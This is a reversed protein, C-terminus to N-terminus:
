FLSLACFLSLLFFISASLLPFFVYNNYCIAKDFKIWQPELLVTQSNKEIDLMILSEGNIDTKIFIIRKDNSSWTPMMFFEDNNGTFTYIEEGKLNLIVIKPILDAEYKIAVIKDANHSIEASFYKGKKTIQSLKKSKLDYIVIDNFSEEQFRINSKYRTWVVKGKAYSINESSIERIAKEEGKYLYCLTTNDDFGSKLVLLSDKGIIQPDFYNTWSRKKKTKLRTSQTIDIQAIQNTWISDLEVFAKKYTKRVNEGTYKKVSREFSYPWFSFMNTRNMIKNWINEGYHINIYSVMHYGLYYHNPYYTKYSRFHAKEYSIKQNQTYITRLPLSFSPMRGRGSNSYKTENFIADGEFYWNPYAWSALVSWGYQGFFTKGLTTFGSNMQSYQTVHRFEHIGLTKDWPSLTLSPYSPPTLYWVMRRPGLAAYANSVVSRNYLLLDVKPPHKSIFVKTDATYLSDMLIVTKKAYDEIEQPFIVRFHKSNIQKWEVSPPNQSQGFSLFPIILLLFLIKKM